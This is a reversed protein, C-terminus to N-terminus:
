SPAAANLNIAGSSGSKTLRPAAPHLMSRPTNSDPLQYLSISGPTQDRLTDPPSGSGMRPGWSETGARAFANAPLSRM